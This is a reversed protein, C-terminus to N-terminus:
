VWGFTQGEFVLLRGQHIAASAATSPSVGGLIVLFVRAIGGHAVVVADGRVAKLWPEVRQQLMAYSEGQPPVFHWKDVRRRHASAADSDRIERWTLGEWRGFTLEMLRGDSTFADDPALGAARRVLLMTERARQLPSAFFTSTSVGGVFQRLRRGASSAQDRGKANLLIDRQGQLRGDRNWDTEGHRIFILRELAADTLARGGTGSRAM